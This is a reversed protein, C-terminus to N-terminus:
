PIQFVMKSLLMMMWFATKKRNMINHQMKTFSHHHHHVEAKLDISNDSKRPRKSNPPARQSKCRIWGVSWSWLVLNLDPQGLIIQLLTWQSTIFSGLHDESIHPLFTLMFFDHQCPLSIIKSLKPWLPEIKSDFIWQLSHNNGPMYRKAM